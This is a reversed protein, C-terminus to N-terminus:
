VAFDAKSLREEALAYVLIEVTVDGGKTNVVDQMSRYWETHERRLREVLDVLRQRPTAMVLARLDAGTDIPGSNAIAEKLTDGIGVSGFGINRPASATRVYREDPPIGAAEGIDRVTPPSFPSHKQVETRNQGAAICSHLAKAVAMRVETELDTAHARARRLKATAKDLDALDAAYANLADDTAM